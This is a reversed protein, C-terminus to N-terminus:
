PEDGEGFRVEICYICCIFALAWFLCAPLSSSIFSATVVNWGGRAVVEKDRHLQQDLSRRGM